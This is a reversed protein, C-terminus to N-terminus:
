SPHSHNETQTRRRPTRRTNAARTKDPKVPATSDRVKLEPPLVEEVPDDRKEGQRIRALTLRVAAHGMAEFPLAVTTLPPDFLESTKLDTFGTVSIDEPVRRGALRLTRCVTMAAEDSACVIATPESEPGQLLQSAAQSTEVVRWQGEVVYSSPVPLGFEEMATRYGDERLAGAADLRNGGIFAIRRHGLGHLHEVMMRCGLTNHAAVRTGWEQTFSSGLTTVPIGHKQMEDHLYDLPQRPMKVVIVGAMRLQLCRQITRRDIEHDRLRLVKITFDHEEAEDLAGALMRAVPEYEPRWVLFGMMRNKGTVIARVLENRQYGMEEATQLVRQRTAENIGVSESRRNLVLSVTAQSVGAREAVDRMTLMM